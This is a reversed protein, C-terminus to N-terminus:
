KPIGTGSAKRVVREEEERWVLHETTPPLSSLREKLFGPVLNWESLNEFPVWQFTLDTGPEVGKFMGSRLHVEHGEPFAIEFYLAVEHWERGERRFYNEVVWVLRGVECPVGIEEVTERSLTDRANELIECRGGPLTWFEEGLEQHILVRRDHVAVGVIRYNFRGGELDFSIM